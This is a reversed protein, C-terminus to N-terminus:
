IGATDMVEQLKLNLHNLDKNNDIIFTNKWHKVDGSKITAVYGTMDIDEMKKTLGRRVRVDYDTNVYIIISNLKILASLENFYYVDDIIVKAKNNIYNLYSNLSFDPNNLRKHECYLSFMLRNLEPDANSETSNPKLFFETVSINHLNCFEQLAFVWIHTRYYEPRLFQIKDAITSRGSKRPGIITILKQNIRLNEAM